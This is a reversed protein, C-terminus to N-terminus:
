QHLISEEVVDYIVRLKHKKINNGRAYCYEMTEGNEEHTVRMVCTAFDLTRLFNELPLMWLEDESSDIKADGVFAVYALSGGGPTQAISVKLIPNQKFFDEIIEVPAPGKKKTFSIFGSIEASFSM